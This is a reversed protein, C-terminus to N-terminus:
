SFFNSSNGLSFKDSPIQYVKVKEIKANNRNDLLKGKDNRLTIRKINMSNRNKRFKELLSQTDKYVISSMNNSLELSDLLMAKYLDEFANISYEFSNENNPLFFTTYTRDEIIDIVVM